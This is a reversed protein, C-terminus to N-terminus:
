YWYPPGQRYQGQQQEDQERKIDKSNYVHGNRWAEIAQGWGYRYSTLREMAYDNDTFPNNVKDFSFYYSLSSNEDGYIWNEGESSRYVKNPPGYIVYIIGRDTKWGEIYSSFFINAEQVRSYYAELLIKSREVSGSRNLWFNDVVKKLEDPKNFAASLEDYERRTTLYRLPPGLHTRKAIFPFQNYFSYVTYGQWQSTDTRFHYFGSQTFMMSQNANVLFTTDPQLDFSEEGGSSYPPLAIPFDRKYYSVYFQNVSQGSYKLLFPVHKPVHNKFIPNGSTDTMLFYDSCMASSKNIRVFNEFEVQRNKDLMTLKLVYKMDETKQSTNLDFYGTIAKTPPASAKDSITVVGSDLRNTIEFSPVLSFNITFNAKYVTEEPERMYLLDASNIRYFIRTQTESTHHVVFEPRPALNKTNYVYGVDSAQYGTRSSCGAIFLMLVISVLIHTQFLPHLVKKMYLALTHVLPVSCSSAFNVM